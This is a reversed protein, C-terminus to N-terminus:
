VITVLLLILGLAHPLAALLVTLGRPRPPDVASVEEPELGNM